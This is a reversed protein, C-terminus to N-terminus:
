LKSGGYQLRLREAEDERKKKEERWKENKNRLDAPEQTLEGGGGFETFYQPGKLSDGKLIPTGDKEFGTVTAKKNNEVKAIAPTDGSPEIIPARWVGDPGMVPQYRKDTVVGDIDVNDPVQEGPQLVYLYNKGKNKDVQYKDDPNVHGNVVIVIPKGSDNQVKGPNSLKAKATDIPGGTETDSPLSTVPKELSIRCKQNTLRDTVVCEKDKTYEFTSDQIQKGQSRVKRETVRGEADYSQTVSEGNKWESTGIVKGEPSFTKESFEGNKKQEKTSTLKGDPSYCKESSDQNARTEKVKTLKGKEYFSENLVGTKEDVKMEYKLENSKGDRVEKSQVKGDKDTIIVSNEAGTRTEKFGGNPLKESVAKAIERNDRTTVATFGNLKGAEDYSYKTTEVAPPPMQQKALEKNHDQVLQAYRPDKIGNTDVKMPRLESQSSVKEVLKNGDYKFTTDRRGTGWYASERQLLNDKDFVRTVSMTCKGLAKGDASAPYTDTTEIKGGDPREVTRTKVM